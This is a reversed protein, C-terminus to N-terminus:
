TAVNLEASIREKEATVVSLRKIYDKLDADMASFSNALKELEDGTHIDIRFAEGSDLSDVLKQTAANLKNVPKVLRRRILLYFVVSAIILVTFIAITITIIYQEFASRIGEM